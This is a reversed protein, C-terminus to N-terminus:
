GRTQVFKMQLDQIIADLYNKESDTLNNRTKERLLVLLDISYQAINHNKELKGTQPNKELGMNVVASSAISIVLTSFTAELTQKETDM